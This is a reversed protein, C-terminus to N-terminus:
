MTTTIGLPYNCLLQIHARDVYGHTTTEIELIANLINPHSLSNFTKLLKMDSHIIITACPQM